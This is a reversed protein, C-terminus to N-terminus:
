QHEDIRKKRILDGPGVPDIEQHRDLLTAVVGKARELAVTVARLGKEHHGTELAMKAVALGQVVEDNLELARRRDITAQADREADLANQLRVQETIDRAVVAAQVIEGESNHVPSVAISVDVLTGDKRRRQTRYHDVREGRLILRLIDLEEGKKHEPVILDMPRGIAEDSAYGYLKQAGENWSTIVAKADKSYIADDSSRVIAALAEAAHRSLATSTSGEGGARRGEEAM